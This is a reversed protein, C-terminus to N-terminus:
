SIVDRHVLVSLPSKGPFSGVRVRREVSRYLRLCCHLGSSAPPVASRLTHRGTVTGSSETQKDTQRM